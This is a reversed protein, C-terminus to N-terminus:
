GRMLGGARQVYFSKQKLRKLIVDGVDKYGRINFHSGDKSRIRIPINNEIIDYQFNGEQDGYRGRLPLYDVGNDRM